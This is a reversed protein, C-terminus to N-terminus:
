LKLDNSNKYLERIDKDSQEQFVDRDSPAQWLGSSVLIQYFTTESSYKEIGNVLANLNATKKVNEASMYEMKVRLKQLERYVVDLEARLRAEDFTYRPTNGYSISADLESLLDDISRTSDSYRKLMKLSDHPSIPVFKAANENELSNNLMHSVVGCLAPKVIRGDALYEKLDHNGTGDYIYIVNKKRLTGYLYKKDRDRLMKQFSVSKSNYIELDNVDIFVTSTAKFKDIDIMTGLAVLSIQSLIVDIEDQSFGDDRLKAVLREEAKGYTFTGDCYTMINIRRVCRKIEELTRKKDGVLFPYLFVDVIEEYSKKYVDDKVFRVGLFDIPLEDIKFGSAVEETTYVRAAQAGERIIGYISKDINDQASLCLLFPKNLEDIEHIPVIGAPNDLKKEIKKYITLM